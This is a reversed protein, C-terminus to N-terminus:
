GLWNTVMFQKRKRSWNLGISAETGRSLCSTTSCRSVSASFIKQISLRSNRRSALSPLFPSISSFNRYIGTLWANSPVKSYVAANYFKRLAAPGDKASKAERLEENAWELFWNPGKGPAPIQTSLKYKPEITSIADLIDQPDVKNEAVFDITSAFIKM